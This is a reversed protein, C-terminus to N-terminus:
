AIISVMELLRLGLKQSGHITMQEQALRKNMGRTFIRWAIEQDIIVETAMQEPAGKFLHWIRNRSVISWCGGSDGTINVSVTTNDDSNIKSYTRPLAWIFTEIVPSFYRPQKLGPLSVADRIHQQHHWHETYERALDLWVPAPEPGIWGIPGDLSFPDLGRFYDFLQSGTSELLDILLRTSIHRSASVWNQNWTNIYNVLDHWDDISTKAFNGDRRRSINGIVGGLLHLAVDKVTWDSCVTEAQWDKDSFSKLLILLERHIEPFLKAVFIPEVTEM